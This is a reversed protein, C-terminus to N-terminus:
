LKFIKWFNKQDVKKFHFKKGSIKLFGLKEFNNKKEFFNVM